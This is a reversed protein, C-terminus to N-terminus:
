RISKTGVIPACPNVDPGFYRLTVLPEIGHNEFVVGEQAASASVFFEDETLEGFHIMAPTRLAHKGIKGCGQVSVLGYAGNDKITVRAGPQVTLEKASFLEKDKVKGYVIWRDQYGNSTTEAV